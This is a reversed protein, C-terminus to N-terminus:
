KILEYVKELAENQPVEYDPILAEDAKSKDIRYWKKHSVYLHLKSNPLQFTLLDGYSNPMNGSAEGVLTGLNNDKILMAFDMASSFTRVNTLVFINGDFVVDKKKNQCVINKNKLLYWGYRIDCDWALYNDVDIYELFANAVMSNGGGNNRLDVAINKIGYTNVENFFEELATLYVENYTCSSLTLIALDNETDIDYYVWITDKNMDYGIVQEIPVFDYHFELPGNKTQYSFTVGNTTDIGCYNLDIQSIIKSNYFLDKVYAETEYSSQNKFTTLISNIDIGNISSPVGYEKIQTFDSIYLYDESSGYSINTHADHLKALIRGTAKWLELVSVNGQLSEIELQYQAELDKIHQNENELYIPHYGKLHKMVYSLDKIAQKQSLTDTLELSAEFKKVTKRYPYMFNFFYIGLIGILIAIAFIVKFWRKKLLRRILKM